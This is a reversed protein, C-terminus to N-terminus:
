KNELAEIRTVLANITAAQRSLEEAQATILAQQEQVTKTLVVTMRDYSFSEVEGDAGYVVLEKIGAEDVWDAIFGFHDKTQDDMNCKSKYRVPRFKTIDISEIDRIDQKYKLASTSRYFNKNTADIGINASSGSTNNYTGVSYIQNNVSISGSGSPSTTTGVLLNGGTDIRMKETATGAGGGENTWFRINSTAGAPTNALSVIDSYRSGSNDGNSFMLGEGYNTFSYTPATTGTTVVKVLGNSYIRMRETDSTTFIMPAAELVRLRLATDDAAVGILCGDTSATGTTSNTFQIYNNVGAGRYTTVANNITTTGIGVNQSTDITVATTGASQLALVGTADGTSILGGSGSNSANITSPM